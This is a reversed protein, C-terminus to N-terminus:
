RSGPQHGPSRLVSGPGNSGPSPKPSEQPSTGDGRGPGAALSGYVHVHHHAMPPIEKGSALSHYLPSSQLAAHWSKYRPLECNYSGSYNHAGLCLAVWTLTQESLAQM